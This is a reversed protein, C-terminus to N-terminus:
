GATEGLYIEDLLHRARAIAGARDEVPRMEISLWGAYGSAMLANAVPRHDVDSTGIAVLSPESLHAHGIAQVVSVIVDAPEDNIFITGTDLQIRVGPAAVETVLEFAEITRTIFRCRYLPPNAEICLSTGRAHYDPGVARFFEVAIARAAEPALDGPDRLTPAGFVCAAAGLEAAIDAIRRLADAMRARSAEDHFLHVDDLGFLIGQLAPVALGLDALKRRYARVSAIDIAALPGFTRMPALEVGDFGLKAAQALASADDNASWALNSIATRL